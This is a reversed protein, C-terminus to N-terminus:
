ATEVEDVQDLANALATLGDILDGITRRLAPREAPPIVTPQTRQVHLLMKHYPKFTRLHRTAAAADIIPAAGSYRETVTEGGQLLEEAATQAAVALEAMPMDDLGMGRDTILDDLNLEGARYALLAGPDAILRLRRQVYMHPKHIAAGIARLSMGGDHLEQLYRAEDEIDLDERQINEVLAITRAAAETLDDRILCPVTELGALGAAQYRREGAIVQYRAGVPRVILPELIGRERIDDALEQLRAPDAHRRPQWPNPDVLARPVARANLLLDSPAVAELATARKPLTGYKTSSM